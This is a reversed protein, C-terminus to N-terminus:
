TSLNLLNAKTKRGLPQFYGNFWVRNVTIDEPIDKVHEALAPTHEKLFPVSLNDRFTPLRSGIQAM